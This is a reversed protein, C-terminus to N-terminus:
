CSPGGCATDPEMRAAPLVGPVNAGPFTAAAVSAADRPVFGPVFPFEFLDRALTERRFRDRDILDPNVVTPEQQTDSAGM